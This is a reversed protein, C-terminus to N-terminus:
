FTWHSVFITARYSLTSWAPMRQEYAVLEKTEDLYGVHLEVSLGVKGGALHMQGRDTDQVRVKIPWRLPAQQHENTFKVILSSVTANSSQVSGSAHATSGKMVSGSGSHQKSLFDGAERWEGDKISWGGISRGDGVLKLTGWCPRPSVVEVSVDTSGTVSGTSQQLLRVYPIDATPPQPQSSSPDPFKLVDLLKSVPFILM